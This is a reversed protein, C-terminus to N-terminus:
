VERWIEVNPAGDVEALRRILQKSTHHDKDLMFTETFHYNLMRVINEATVGESLNFDILRKARADNRQELGMKRKRTYNLSSPRFATNSRRGAEACPHIEVSPM